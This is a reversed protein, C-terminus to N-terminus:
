PTNLFRYIARAFIRAVAPVVANGTVRCSAEALRTSLGHVLVPIGTVDEHWWNECSVRGRLDPLSHKGGFKLRTEGSGAIADAENPSGRESESEIDPADVYGNQRALGASGMQECATDASVNRETEERAHETEDARGHEAHEPRQRAQERDSHPTAGSEFSGSTQECAQRSQRPQLLLRQGERRESDRDTSDVAILFLRPRIHGAGVIAAPVIEWLCDYRLAALGNVIGDWARGDELGLIAPPNEFVAVRPRLEGVVRIAEPWLWREDATGRQQGLLSAPQCPVGGTIVDVPGIEALIGRSVNRVDGFNRVCPYHAAIVLSADPEYEAFGVTRFGECEFGLSFGCIGAFLEFLTPENVSSEQSRASQTGEVQEADPLGL